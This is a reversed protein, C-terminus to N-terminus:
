SKKRDVNGYVAGRKLALNEKSQVAGCAPCRLRSGKNEEPVNEQCFGCIFIRREGDVEHRRRWTFIFWSGLIFALSVATYFIFISSLSVTM